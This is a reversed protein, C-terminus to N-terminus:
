LFFLIRLFNSFSLSCSGFLCPLVPSTDAGAQYKAGFALVASPLKRKPLGLSGLDIHWARSM